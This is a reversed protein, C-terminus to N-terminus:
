MLIINSNEGHCLSSVPHMWWMPIVSLATILIKMSVKRLLNWRFRHLVQVKFPLNKKLLPFPKEEPPPLLIQTEPLMLAGNQWFSEAASRVPMYRVAFRIKGSLPGSASHLIYNSDPNFLQPWFAGNQSLVLTFYVPFTQPTSETPWFLVHWNIYILRRKCEKREKRKAKFFFFIVLGPLGMELVESLKGSVSMCVVSNSFYFDNQPTLCQKADM